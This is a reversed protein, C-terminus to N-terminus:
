SLLWRPITEGPAFLHCSDDRVAVNRQQRQCCRRQMRWPSTGQTRPPWCGTIFLVSHRHECMSRRRPTALLPEAGLERLECLAHEEAAFGVIDLCFAATYCPVRCFM